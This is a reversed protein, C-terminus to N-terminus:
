HSSGPSVTFSASRTEKGSRVEWRYTAGPDLPMPVLWHNDTLTESQAIARGSTDTLSVAYTDGFPKWRLIPQRDEILVPEVSSHDGTLANMAAGDDRHQMTLPAVILIAAVAAAALALQPGRFMARLRDWVTEPKAPPIIPASMAPAYSEYARLERACAECAGIHAMVLEQETWDLRNEVYGDMQEYSLHDSQSQLVVSVLPSALQERCEECSELHGAMDALKTPELERNRFQTWQEGTFHM